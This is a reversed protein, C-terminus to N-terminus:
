DAGAATVAATGRSQRQQPKEQSMQQQKDDSVQRVGDTTPTQPPAQPQWTGTAEATLSSNAALVDDTVSPAHLFMYGGRGKGGGTEEAQTITQTVTQPRKTMCKHSDQKKNRCKRHYKTEPQLRLWTPHNDM